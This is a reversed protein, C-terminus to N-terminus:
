VCSILWMYKKVRWKIAALSTMACAMLVLWTNTQALTLPPLPAEDRQPKTHSVLLLLLLLCMTRTSKDRRSPKHSKHLLGCSCSDGHWGSYDCPPRQPLYAACKSLLPKIVTKYFKLHHNVKYSKNNELMLYSFLLKHKDWINLWVGVWCIVGQLSTKVQTNDWKHSSRRSGKPCFSDAWTVEVKGGM